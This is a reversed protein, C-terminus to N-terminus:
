IERHIITTTDKESVANRAQFIVPTDGIPFLAVDISASTTLTDSGAPVTVKEPLQVRSDLSTLYIDEGSGIAAQSLVVSITLRQTFRSFAVEFSKIPISTTRAFVQYSIRSLAGNDGQLALIM